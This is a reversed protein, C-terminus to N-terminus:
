ASRADDRLLAPAETCLAGKGDTIKDCDFFRDGFENRWIQCARKKNSENDVANESNKSLRKILKKFRDKDSHSLRDSLIEDSYIPHNINFDPSITDNIRAITRAFSVDDREEQIYNNVVLVTIILSSPMEGEKTSQYDGWAKLYKVIDRLQEGENDVRKIFWDTILRPDSLNWGNAGKEALYPEKKYFGYIPLDVHYKTPKGAYIVRVCTRKDIPDKDTYGKVADFIWKHVTEPTPWKLKNEELNRLYVGDDIDYDENLPNVITNMMYSGQGWFQPIEYLLKEKFYTKIKKRLADRSSMLAEKKSSDLTIEKEFKRFLDHCNAM